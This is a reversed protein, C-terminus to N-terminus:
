VEGGRDSEELLAEAKAEYVEASVRLSDALASFHAFWAAGNERRKRERYRRASAEYMARLENAANREGSRREILADISASAQEVDV